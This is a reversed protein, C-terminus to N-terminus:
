VSLVPRLAPLIIYCYMKLKMSHPYRHIRRVPCSGPLDAYTDLLKDVLSYKVLIMLLGAFRKLLGWTSRLLHPHAMHRHEAMQLSTIEAKGTLGCFPTRYVNQRARKKSAVPDFLRRFPCPSAICVKAHGQSGCSCSCTPRCASNRINKAVRSCLTRLPAYNCRAIRRTIAYIATRKISFM